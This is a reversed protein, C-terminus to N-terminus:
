QAAPQVQRPASVAAFHGVLIRAMGRPDDVLHGAPSQLAVLRVGGQPRLLRTLGPGPAEGAHLWCARQQQMATVAPPRSAAGYAAQAAAAEQLLEHQVQEGAAHLRQLSVALRQEAAQEQARPGHAEKYSRQLQCVRAQFAEKITPWERVLQAGPLHVHTAVVRGVYQELQQRLAPVQLFDLQARWVGRGQRAAAPAVPLLVVGVPLHDSVPSALVKCAHLFPVAPASVYIRDLRSGSWGPLQGQSAHRRIHTFGPSSPHKCRFADLVTHGQEQLVSLLRQHLLGQGLRDMNWVQGGLLRSRDLAADPVFNFDGLLLLSGRGVRGVAPRLVEELFREQQTHQNPWYTNALLFRHGAWELDCTLCRGDTSAHRVRLQLRHGSVGSLALVAVGARHGDHLSNSGFVVRAEGVGVTQAARQFWQRLQEESQGGSRGAWTEQICVVRAGSRAWAGVLQQVKVADTLGGVNHTVITVAQPPRVTAPGPRRM